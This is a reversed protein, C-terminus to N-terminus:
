GGNEETPSDAATPCGAAAADDLYNEHGDFRNGIQQEVAVECGIRGTVDV